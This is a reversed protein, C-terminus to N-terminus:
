REKQQRPPTTPGANGLSLAGSKPRQKLDSFHSYGEPNRHNGVRMIPKGRRKQLPNGRRILDPVQPINALPRSKLLNQAHPRRNLDHPPILVVFRVPPHTQFQFTQPMPKVQNMDRRTRSRNSHFIEKMPMGM